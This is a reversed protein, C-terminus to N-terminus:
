GTERETGSQRRGAVAGGGLDAPLWGPPSRCGGSSVHEDRLAVGRLLGSSGARAGGLRAVSVPATESGGMRVARSRSHEEVRERHTERACGRDQGRRCVVAATEGPDSM